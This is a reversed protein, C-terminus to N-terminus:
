LEFDSNGSWTVATTQQILCNVRKGNKVAPTFIWTDMISKMIIDDFAANGSSKLLRANKPNGEKDVLIIVTVRLVKAGKRVQEPVRPYTRDLVTPRQDVENQQYVHQINTDVEIRPKAVIDLKGITTMAPLAPPGEPFLSALEPSVVAIKVASESSAIEIGTLPTAVADVPEPTEVLKPPPPEFLAAMTRLELLEAPPSVPEVSDLHSLAFFIGFTIIAGALLSISEEALWRRRTLELTVLDAKLAM